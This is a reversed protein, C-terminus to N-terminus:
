RLLFCLHGQPLVYVWACMIHTYYQSLLGLHYDTVSQWAWRHEVLHEDTTTTDASCM